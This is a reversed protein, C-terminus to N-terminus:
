YMHRFEMLSENMLYQRDWDLFDRQTSNEFIADEKSKLIEFIGYMVTGIALLFSKCEFKPRGM